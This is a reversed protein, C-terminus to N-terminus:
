WPVVSRSREGLRALEDCLLSVHLGPVEDTSYVFDGSSSGVVEPVLGELLSAGGSGLFEFDNAGYRVTSGEEFVGHFTLSITRRLTEERIM